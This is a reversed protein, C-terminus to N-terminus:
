TCFSLQVLQQAPHNRAAPTTNVQGWGTLRGYGVPAESLSPPPPCPEFFCVLNEELIELMSSPFIFFFPYLDNISNPPCFKYLEKGSNKAGPCNSSHSSNIRKKMDDQHLEDKEEYWGPAFYSAHCPVSYNQGGFFLSSRLRRKQTFGEEKWWWDRTIDM